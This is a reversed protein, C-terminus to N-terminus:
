ISNGSRKPITFSICGISDRKSLPAVDSGAFHRQLREMLGSSARGETRFVFARFEVIEVEQGTRSGLAPRVVERAAAKAVLEVIPLQKGSDALYVRLHLKGTGDFFASEFLADDLHAAVALSQLGIVPSALFTVGEAYTQFSVSPLRPKWRAQIAEALKKRNDAATGSQLCVGEVELRRDSTDNGEYTFYLRDIRTREQLPDRSATLERQLAQRQEEWRFNRLNLIPEDKAVPALLAPKLPPATKNEDILKRLKELQGAGEDYIVDFNLKRNEDFWGSEFLVGDLKPDSVTLRQLAPTPDLIFPDDPLAVKYTQGGPQKVIGAFYSELRQELRTRLQAKDGHPQLVILDIHIRPEEDM